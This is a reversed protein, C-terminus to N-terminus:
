PVTSRYVRSGLQFGNTQELLYDRVDSWKAALVDVQIERNFCVVKVEYVSNPIQGVIKDARNKMALMTLVFMREPVCCQTSFACDCRINVQFGHRAAQPFQVFYMGLRIIPMFLNKLLIRRPLISCIGISPTSLM